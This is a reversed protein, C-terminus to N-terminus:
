RVMVFMVQFWFNWSFHFGVVLGLGLWRTRPHQAFSIYWLVGFLGIVVAWEPSYGAIAFHLFGFLVQGLIWGYRGFGSWSFIRPWVIMGLLTESPVVILGNQVLYPWINNYQIGVERGLGRDLVLVVVVAVFFGATLGPAFRGPRLAKGLDDLWERGSGEFYAIALAVLGTADAIIYWDYGFFATSISLMRAEVIPIFPVLVTLLAIV